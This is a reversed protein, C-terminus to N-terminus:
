HYRHLQSVHLFNGKKPWPRQPDRFELHLDSELLYRAGYQSRNFFDDIEKICQLVHEIDEFQSFSLISYLYHESQNRMDDRKYRDILEDKLKLTTPKGYPVSAGAGLFLALRLQRSL